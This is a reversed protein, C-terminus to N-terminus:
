IRLYCVGFPTLTIRRSQGVCAPNQPPPAVFLDGDTEWAIPCAVVSLTVPPQGSSFIPSPLPQTEGDSHFELTDPDIAYEWGEVPEMQLDVARPEHPDRALVTERRRVTVSITILVLYRSEHTLSPRLFTPNAVSVRSEYFPLVLESDFAYNLPGRHIAISGHPRKETEPTLLIGSALTCVYWCRGGCAAEPIGQDRWRPCSCGALWRQREFAEM